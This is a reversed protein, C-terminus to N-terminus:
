TSLTTVRAHWSIGHKPPSQLDRSAAFACDNASCLHNLTDLSPDISEDNQTRKAWLVSFGRFYSEAPSDAFLLNAFAACQVAAVGLPDFELAIDTGIALIVPTVAIARGKLAPPARL